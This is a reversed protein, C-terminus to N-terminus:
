DGVRQGLQNVQVTLYEADLGNDINVMTVEPIFSDLMALDWSM